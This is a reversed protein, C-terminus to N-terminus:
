YDFPQSEPKKPDKAIAVSVTKEFMYDFVTLVEITQMTVVDEAGTMIFDNRVEAVLYGSQSIRENIRQIEESQESLINSSTFSGEDGIFKMNSPQKIIEISRVKSIKGLFDSLGLIKVSLGYIYGSNDAPDTDESDYLFPQPDSVIAIKTLGCGKVCVSEISGDLKKHASDVLSPLDAGYRDEVERNASYMEMSTSQRFNEYEARLVANRFIGSQEPGVGFVKTNQPIDKYAPLVCRFGKIIPETGAPVKIRYDKATPDPDQSTVSGYVIFEGIVDEGKESPIKCSFKVETDADPLPDIKVRGRITIPDDVYTIGGSTADLFEVGKKPKEEVVDPSSWSQYPASFFTFPDRFFAKTGVVIKAVTPGIGIDDAVKLLLVGGNLMFFMIIAFVFMIGLFAKLHMEAFQIISKLTGFFMKPIFLAIRAPAGLVGKEKEKQALEGRLVTGTFDALSKTAVGAQKGLEKVGQAGAQGGKSFADRVKEKLSRLKPDDAM